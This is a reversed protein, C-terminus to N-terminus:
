AGVAGAFITEQVYEVVPSTLAVGSGINIVLRLDTASGEDVSDRFANESAFDIIGFGALAGFDCNFLRENSYRLDLGDNYKEPTDNGGYRWGLPGFNAATLPLPVGVAGNFVQWYTRLLQRGVGQGSLRIENEGNAMNISRTQILSHFASLDPVIVSGDPGQPISYIVGEVVVNGTLVATANGTLTFLDATSAWDIALNLDTSSTQAFIAGMLNVQDFAIPVFVSIEVAVTQAGLGTVNSGVGWSESALSLTGQTRATGPSAGGIAQAVGRDSLDGRGMIDRAKLKWGSVNILNSQGNASFRVAKFLDYPWRATTAITGAGPTLVLSGSFKVTIGAVIGTQLISVNDTQGLGAYTMTKQLFTLRRTARFFAQPNVSSAPVVIGQMSQQPAAQTPSM